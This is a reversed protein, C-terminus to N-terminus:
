KLTVTVVTNKLDSFEYRIHGHPQKGMSEAPVSSVLSRGEMWPEIVLNQQINGDVSIMKVVGADDRKREIRLKTWHTIGDKVIPTVTEIFDWIEPLHECVIFSNELVSYQIGALREILLLVIAEDWGYYASGWPKYNGDWAEPAIPFGYDRVMGNIHGLTCQIADADVHHRFMGEIVLWTTLTSVNFPWVQESDKARINIPVEGLFGEQSNMVWHESMEEAWEDPMDHAMMTWLSPIDKVKSPGMFHSIDEEWMHRYQPLLQSYLSEWHKVDYPLKLERAMDILSRCINLGIGWEFFASGEGGAWDRNEEEWWLNRFFNYVEWLFNKDGSHEYIM